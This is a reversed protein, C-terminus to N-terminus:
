SPLFVRAKSWATHGAGLATGPECFISLNSLEYPCVSIQVRVESDLVRAM